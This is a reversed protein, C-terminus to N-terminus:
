VLVTGVGEAGFCCDAGCRELFVCGSDPLASTDSPMRAPAIRIKAPQAQSNRPGQDRCTGTVEEAGWDVGVGLAKKASRYSSACICSVM